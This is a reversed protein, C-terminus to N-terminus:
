WDILDRDAWFRGGPAGPAFRCLWVPTDAGQEVSRSANAGGMDTRVWGPCTANALLGEDSHAGHLTVTLRNLGAKSAAYAPHGSEHTGAFQGARSSVNVVRGGEHDLLLPLAHKTVLLPGILDVEVAARLGVSSDEHLPGPPGYIAANNVLADLRGSEEEIRGIAAEIEPEETVDLEVPRLGDSTVDDTNRAGAYVTAGLDNLCVAIEAGIGRSTGTVLAVQGDLTHHLDVDM